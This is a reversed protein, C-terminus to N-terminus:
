KRTGPFYTVDVEGIVGIKWHCHIPKFSDAQVEVRSSQQTVAYLHSSLRWTKQGNTEGAYVRYCASGIKYGTSFKIDLELGRRGGLARADVAHRRGPVQQRARHPGESGSLGQAGERLGRQGPCLEEEQLLLRGSPIPGPRGRGARSQSGHGGAPLTEPRCGCRRQNGRLLHGAGASRFALSRRRTASDRPRQHGCVPAASRPGAHGIPFQNITKM